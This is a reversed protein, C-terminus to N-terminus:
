PNKPCSEGTEKSPGANFRERSWVSTQIQKAENHMLSHTHGWSGLSARQDGGRGWGEDGQMRQVQGGM